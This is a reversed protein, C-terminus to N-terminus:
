AKSTASKRAHHEELLTLSRRLGALTSLSSHSLIQNPLPSGFVEDLSSMIEASAFSDVADVDPHALAHALAADVDLTPDCLKQRELAERLVSLARDAVTGARASALSDLTLSAM